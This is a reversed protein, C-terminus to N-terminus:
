RGGDPNSAINTDVAWPSASISAVTSAVRRASRYDLCAGEGRAPSPQSSPSGGLGSDVAAHLATKVGM